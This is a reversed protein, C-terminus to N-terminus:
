VQDRVYISTVFALSALRYGQSKLFQFIETGPRDVLSMDHDEVLLFLPAFRSWDNSRLVKLDFGEVDVSMLDIEQGAPLHETLIDDLRRTRIRLPELPKFGTKTNKAHVEPDATSVGPPDFVTFEVDEPVDSVVAHVNRDLPRARGFAEINAPNADINIGHWGMLNFLCTNSAFRPHLAGVDVYFGRKDELGFTSLMSRVIADEGFQSFHLRTNPDAAIEMALSASPLQHLNM